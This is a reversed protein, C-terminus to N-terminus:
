VSIELHTLETQFKTTLLAYVLFVLAKLRHRAARTEAGTTQHTFGM